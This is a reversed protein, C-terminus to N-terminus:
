PNILKIKKGKIEVEASGSQSEIVIGDKLMVHDKDARMAVGGAGTDFELALVKDDHRLTIGKRRNEKTLPVPPKNKPNYMAGLVVPFTPDNQFFGVVVEDGKDPYFHFGSKRSAYPMGLRAWVVKNGIIPLAVRIRDFNYPDSSFEAIVGTQLGQITPLPALEANLGQMGLSVTTRWQAKDIHQRVATIIGSGDFGEGFGSLELTQGLSYATSGQVTFQGQVSAEQLHVLMSNALTELGHQTLSISSGIIWPTSNLSAVGAPSLAKDGLSVPEGDASMINQQEINWATVKLSAPQYQANYTWKGEVAAAGKGIRYLTHDPESALM